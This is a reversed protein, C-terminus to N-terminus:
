RTRMAAPISRRVLRASGAAGASTSRLGLAAATQPRYPRTDSHRIQEEDWLGLEITQAGRVDIGVRLEREEGVGASQVGEDRDLAGARPVEARREARQVDDRMKQEVLQVDGLAAEVIGVAVDEERGLAV